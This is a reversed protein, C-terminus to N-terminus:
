SSSRVRFACDKSGCCRSVEGVVKAIARASKGEAVLRGLTIVEDESWPKGKVLGVM